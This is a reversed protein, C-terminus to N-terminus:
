LARCIPPPPDTRVCQPRALSPSPCGALNGAHGRGSVCPPSVVGGLMAQMLADADADADADTDADADCTMKASTDDDDGGCGIMMLPFLMWSNLRM